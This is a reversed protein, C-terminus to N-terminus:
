AANKFPSTYDFVMPSAPIGPTPTFLPTASVSPQVAPTTDAVADTPAHSRMRAEMTNCLDNGAEGFLQDM